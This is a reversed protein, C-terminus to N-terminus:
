VGLSRRLFNNLFTGTPDLSRRLDNFAELKPYVTRLYTYDAWHQKGWHPRGQMEEGIRELGRAYTEFTQPPGTRNATGLVLTSVVAIDRDYMPSMWNSDQAVYRMGTFLACGEENQCPDGAM